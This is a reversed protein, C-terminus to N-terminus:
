FKFWNLGFKVFQNKNYRYNKPIYKTNDLFVFINFRTGDVLNLATFQTGTIYQYIVQCISHYISLTYM